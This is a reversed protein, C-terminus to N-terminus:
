ATEEGRLKLTPIFIIKNLQIYTFDSIITVIYYTSNNLINKLSLLTIQIVTATSLIYPRIDLLIDLTNTIYKFFVVNFMIHNLCTTHQTTYDNINFIKLIINLYNINCLM